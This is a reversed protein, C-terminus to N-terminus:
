IVVQNLKILSSRSTVMSKKLPLSFSFKSGSGPESEVWIKGGHTDVMEKCLILGLGSGTEQATGKTTFTHSIDFLRSMDEPKIGVGNDSVSIIVQGNDEVANINVLGGNGTFKIANSVLNRLITKLMEIDAYVMLDKDAHCNITINKAIAGPYLNKLVHMCIDRILSLKPEFPLNGSQVMAWELLDELMNYTNKTASNIHGIFNVIKDKDLIHIDKTLIELFGLISNFPNRLDHGLISIFRDKDQNLKELQANLKEIQMAHLNTRILAMSLLFMLISITIGSVLVVLLDANLLSLDESKRTFVMLWEESNLQVPLSVSLNPTDNNNEGETRQSDYLLAENSIEGRDYIRLHIRNKGPLDWNGLIGSTLDNIRYPSYVWGKIAARREEVTNVPMGQRYVPIYMLAGAQVDEDTEQVLHVKGSLVAFSSDRATAMAERRVPESFMDYGFARLNRGSFPELYIISTYIERDGEPFVTYDSFGSDRFSQIHQRLQDRPIIHTYGYGQIGPLYHSIRTHEYFKHWMERTVTDSVAFLAAGSRLIQAHERLRTYMKSQLDIAAFEFDQIATKEIYTKTYYVSVATLLLAVVLVVLPKWLTILPPNTVQYQNKFVSSNM